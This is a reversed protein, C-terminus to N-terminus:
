LVPCLRLFLYKDPPRNQLSWPHGLKFHGIVFSRATTVLIGAGRRWDTADDVFPVGDVNKHRSLSSNEYSAPGILAIQEPKVHQLFLQRIESLVIGAEAVNTATRRVAPSEGDPSGPLLRVEINALASASRAIAKTNRCNARM